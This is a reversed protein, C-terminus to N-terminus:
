NGCIIYTTVPGNEAVETESAKVGGKNCSYKIIVVKNLARASEPFRGDNPNLVLTPACQNKDDCEAAFRNTYDLWHSGAGFAVSVIRITSNEKASRELIHPAANFTLVFFVLAGAARVSLGKMSLGIKLLGPITAGLVAMAFSLLKRALAALNPDAFPENRIILYIAFFIVVVAAIIAMLREWSGATYQEPPEEESKKPM